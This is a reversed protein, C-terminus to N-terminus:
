SDFYRDVESRIEFATSRGLGRHVFEGGPGVEYEAALAQANRVVYRIGDELAALDDDDTYIGSSARVLGPLTGCGGIPADLLAEADGGGLLHRVYLQACFSGNRVAVNCADSLAAAVFGHPLDGVNFSFVAVRPATAVDRPGYLTVGPIRDLRELGSAVLGREHEEVLEMGFRSLAEVVVGIGISGTLNPTGGEERQTVDPSASFGAVSVVDAMGGGVVGVADPGPFTERTTVLVGRSGPAYLKHASLALHDVDGAPDAPDHMVIRAHPAWQAGDVVVEAGAAHALRAVERIPNLVGTVNSAGTLAVVRVRDGEAELIRALDAVDLRGDRTLEPFRLNRSGVARMWPLINSHHEMRSVVVVNRRLMAARDAGRERAAERVGGLADRIEQDKIRAGRLLLRVEAPFLADALLNLAGTAGNGAFLAVHRAPDAAVFKEVASRAYAIERSTARAARHASSHSNGLARGCYAGIAEHLVRPMLATAGTDLYVRRKETREPDAVADRCALGLFDKRFRDFLVRAAARDVSADPDRAFDNM